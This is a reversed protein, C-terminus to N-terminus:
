RFWGRSWGAVPLSICPQRNVAQRHSALLTGREVGASAPIDVLWGIIFVKGAVTTEVDAATASTIYRGSTYSAFVVRHM